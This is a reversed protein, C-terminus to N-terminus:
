LFKNLIIAKYCAGRRTFAESAFYENLDRLRAPDIPSDNTNLARQQTSSNGILPLQFIPESTFNLCVQLNYLEILM